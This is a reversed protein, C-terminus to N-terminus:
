TGHRAMSKLKCYADDKVPYQARELAKAATSVDWVDILYFKGAIYEAGLKVATRGSM